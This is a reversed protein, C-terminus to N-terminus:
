QVHKDQEDKMKHIRRVAEEAAARVHKSNDSKTAEILADIARADGLMGLSLAAYQRVGEDTDSLAVVLQTVVDVSKMNGLAYAAKARVFSDSDKLLTAVAPAAEPYGLKGLAEATRARVLRNDDTLLDIMPKIASPDNRTGLLLAANRRRVPNPSDLCSILREVVGGDIKGIARDVMMRVEGGRRPNEFHAWEEDDIHEILQPLAPACDAGLKWLSEAASYRV